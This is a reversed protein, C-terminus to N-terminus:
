TDGRSVEHISCRGKVREVAASLWEPEESGWAISLCAIVKPDFEQWRGAQLDELLERGHFILLLDVDPDYAFILDAQELRDLLTKCVVVGRPTAWCYEGFPIAQDVIEGLYHIPKIKM